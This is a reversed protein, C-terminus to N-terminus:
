LAEEIAIVIKEAGGPRCLKMLESSKTELDNDLIAMLRERVGDSQRECWGLGQEVIFSANHYQHDAAAYPFPIYLAPLGNACLEWLTSAGARSVALDSQGLLKPMEKTFAVLDVDVNLAAYAEKVREYDREGCQHTIAIGRSKLEVAVSLALDNIFAAGQSGGLFILREVKNRVRATEFVAQSVPYDRVASDTDYSSFFRTARSKLLRNLRGTVANQEHIFLPLGMNLAAFSAPAASFGGVSIVADIRHKKLLKRSHLFAKSIRWLAAFKKLGRQNVVGTTPLFYTHTFGEADEFWMRDQGSTSGIFLAEHGRENLAEMLAKAIVLHGGTGGGTLVFRM